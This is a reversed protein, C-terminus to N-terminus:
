KKHEMSFVAEKVLNEYKGLSDGANFNFQNQLKKLSSLVTENNGKELQTITVQILHRSVMAYNTTYNLRQGLSFLTSILISSVIALIGRAIRSRRDHNKLESILWAIPFGLIIFIFIGINIINVIINVLFSFVIEM